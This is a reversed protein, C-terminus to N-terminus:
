RQIEALDARIAALAQPLAATVMTAFEDFTIKQHFDDSFVEALAATLADRLLDAETYDAYEEYNAM